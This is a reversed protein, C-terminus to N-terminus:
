TFETYSVIIYISSVASDLTYQVNPIDTLYQSVKNYTLYDASRCHRPNKGNGTKM